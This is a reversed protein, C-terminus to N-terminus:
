LVVEVHSVIEELNEILRKDSMRFANWRGVHRDVQKKIDGINLTELHALLEQIKEQRQASLDHASRRTM